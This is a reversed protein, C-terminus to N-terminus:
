SEHKPHVAGNDADDEADDKGFSPMRILVNGDKDILGRDVMSQFREEAPRNLRALFSNWEADSFHSPKAYETM